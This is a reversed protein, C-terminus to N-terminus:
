VPYSNMVIKMSPFSKKGLARIGTNHTLGLVNLSFPKIVLAASVSGKFLMGRM